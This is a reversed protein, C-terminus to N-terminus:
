ELFFKHSATVGPYFSSLKQPQFDKSRGTLVLTVRIFLFIKLVCWGNPTPGGCGCNHNTTVFFKHYFWIVLFTGFANLKSLLWLDHSDMTMWWTWWVYNSILFQLDRFHTFLNNYIFHCDCTKHHMSLTFPYSYVMISLSYM